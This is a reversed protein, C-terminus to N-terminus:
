GNKLQSLQRKNNPEEHIKFVSLIKHSIYNPMMNSISLMSILFKGFVQFVLLKNRLLKYIFSFM